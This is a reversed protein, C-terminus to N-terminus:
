DLSVFHQSPLQMLSNGELPSTSLAHLVISQSGSIVYRLVATLAPGTSQLQQSALAAGRPLILLQLLRKPVAISTTSFSCVLLTSCLVNTCPTLPVIYHVISM